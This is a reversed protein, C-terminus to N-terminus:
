SGRPRGLPQGNITIRILSGGPQGNKLPHIVVVAKDGPKMSTRKWGARSLSNPSGGEISWEVENGSADKVLVQTWTHPNTWQFEKITGELTVEKENDFMAFSHHASLPAATTAAIALAAFTVSKM